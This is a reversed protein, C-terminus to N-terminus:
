KMSFVIKSIDEDFLNEKTVCVTDTYINEPVDGNKGEALLYANKVGLYGMAYPNQVILAYMKESELLEVCKLNTDFGIAKVKKELGLDATAMGVGISTWENFGVIANIDPNEFLLREAAEYASKENNETNKEAAIVANECKAIYEKFGNERLRINNSVNDTKLIGIKIKKDKPFAGVATKAADEGALADDTGILSSVYPSDVGSDVCIIKVKKDAANKVSDKLKDSDIASLVIVDSGNEVAKDILRKQEEYDDENECGAFSLETNFESSAAFAGNKMHNFFDSKETKVIFSIKFQKNGNSFSCSCLSFIMCILVSILVIKRSKM